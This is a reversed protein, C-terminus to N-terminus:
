LSTETTLIDGHKLLTSGYLMPKKQPLLVLHLPYEYLFTEQKHNESCVLSKDAKRICPIYEVTFLM